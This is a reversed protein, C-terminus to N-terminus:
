LYGLEELIDEYNNFELKELKDLFEDVKIDLQYGDDWDTFDLFFYNDDEYNYYEIEVSWVSIKNTILRENYYISISVINEDHTAMALIQESDDNQIVVNGDGVVKVTIQDYDTVDYPEGFWEIMEVFENEVKNSQVTNITHITAFVLVMGILAALNALIINVRKSMSSRVRQSM